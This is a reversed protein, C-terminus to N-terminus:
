GQRAVPLKALACGVAPRTQRVSSKKLGCLLGRYPILILFHYGHDSQMHVNGKSQWKFEAVWRIVSVSQGRYQRDTSVSRMVSGIPASVFSFSM